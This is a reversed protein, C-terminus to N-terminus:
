LIMMMMMPKVNMTGGIGHLTTGVRGELQPGFIALRAQYTLGKRSDEKAGFYLYNFEDTQVNSPEMDCPTPARMPLYGQVSTGYELAGGRKCRCGCGLGL